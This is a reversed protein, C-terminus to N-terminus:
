WPLGGSLIPRDHPFLRSLLEPDSILESYARELEPQNVDEFNAPAKRRMRAFLTHIKDPKAGKYKDTEISLSHCAGCLLDTKHYQDYKKEPLGLTAKPDSRTKALHAVVQTAADDRYFYPSWRALRGTIAEWDEERRKDWSLYSFGHCRQCRTRFTWADPYSRMALMFATVDDLEKESLRVGEVEVQTQMTRKWESPTKLYYLALARTHCDGCKVEFIKQGPTSYIRAARPACAVLAAASIVILLIVPLFVMKIKLSKKKENKKKLTCTTVLVGAFLFGPFILYQVTGLFFTMGPDINDHWQIWWFAEAWLWTSLAQSFPWSFAGFLGAMIVGALVKCKPTLNTLPNAESQGFIRYIVSAFVAVFLPTAAFLLLAKGVPIWGLKIYWAPASTPYWWDQWLNQVLTEFDLTM